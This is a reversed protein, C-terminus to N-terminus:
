ASSEGDKESIENLFVVRGPLDARPRTRSMIKHQPTSTRACPKRASPSIELRLHYAKDSSGHRFYRETKETQM